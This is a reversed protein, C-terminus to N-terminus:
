ERPVHFNLMDLSQILYAVDILVNSQSITTVLSSFLLKEMCIQLFILLRFAYAGNIVTTRKAYLSETSIIWEIAISISTDM